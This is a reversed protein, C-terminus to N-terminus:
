PSKVSGNLWIIEAQDICDRVGLHSNWVKERRLWGIFRWEWGIVTSEIESLFTILPSRWLGGNGDAQGIAEVCVDKEGRDMTLSGFELGHIGPLSFWQPWGLFGSVVNM